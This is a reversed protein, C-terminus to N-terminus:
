AAPIVLNFEHWCLIASLAALDSSEVYLSSGPPVYLPDHPLEVGQNVAVQIGPDTVGLNALAVNGFEVTGSVPSPGMNYINLASPNDIVLRVGVRFRITGASARAVRAFRIQSGGPANSYFQLVTFGLAGTFPGGGSFAMPPLLPPILDSADHVIGVPHILDHYEPAWGPRKEGLRRIWEGLNLGPVRM